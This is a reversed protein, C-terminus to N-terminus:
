PLTNFVSSRFSRISRAAGIHHIGSGRARERTSAGGRHLHRRYLRAALGAALIVAVALVCCAHAALGPHGAATCLDGMM